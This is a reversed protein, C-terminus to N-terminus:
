INFISETEVSKYSYSTSIIYHIWFEIKNALIELAKDRSNGFSPFDHLFTQRIIICLEFSLLPLIKYIHFYQFNFFKIQFSFIGRQPTFFKIEM